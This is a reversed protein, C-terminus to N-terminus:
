RLARKNPMVRQAFQEVSRCFSSATTDCSTKLPWGLAMPPRSTPPSALWSAACIPKEAASMSRTRRKQFAGRIAGRSPRLATSMNSAISRPAMLASQTIAVFGATDSGRAPSNRAASLLSSRNTTDSVVSRLSVTSAARM